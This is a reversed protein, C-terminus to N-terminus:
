HVHFGDATNLKGVSMCQLLGVVTHAPSRRSSSTQQPVAGCQHQQRRVNHQPELIKKTNMEEAREGHLHRLEDYLTQVRVPLRVALDPPYVVRLVELVQRPLYPETYRLSCIASYFPAGNRLCQVWLSWVANSPRVVGAGNLPNQPYLM